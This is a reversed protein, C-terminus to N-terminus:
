HQRVPSRTQKLFPPTGDSGYWNHVLHHTKRLTGLPWWKRPRSHNLMAPAWSGQWVFVDAVQSSRDPIEGQESVAEWIGVPGTDRGCSLAKHPWWQSAECSHRKRTGLTLWWLLRLHAEDAQLVSWTWGSEWSGLEGQAVAARGSDEGGCGEWCYRINPTMVLNAFASSWGLFVAFSLLPVVVNPFMPAMVTVGLTM